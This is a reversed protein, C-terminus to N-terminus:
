MNARLLFAKVLDALIQFDSFDFDFEYYWSANISTFDIPLTFEPVVPDAVFLGLVLTLDTVISFPFVSKITTGLATLATATASETLDDIWDSLTDITDLINSYLLKNNIKDLEDIADKIADLIKELLAIIEDFFDTYDTSDTTTSNDVSNDVYNYITYSGDDNLAGYHFSSLGYETVLQAYLSQSQFVAWRGRGYFAYPVSSLYAAETDSGSNFVYSEACFYGNGGANTYYSWNYVTDYSYLFSNTITDTDSFDTDPFLASQGLSINYTGYSYNDMFFCIYNLGLRSFSFNSSDYTYYRQYYKSGSSAYKISVVNNNNVYDQDIYTICMGYITNGADDTGYGYNSHFEIWLYDCYCITEKISAMEDPYTDCLYNWSNVAIANYETDLLTPYYTATNSNGYPPYYTLIYDSWNISKDYGLTELTDILASYVTDSITLNLGEISTNLDWLAQLEEETYTDYGLFGMFTGLFNQIANDSGLIASADYGAQYAAELIASLIGDEGNSDTDIEDAFSIIINNYSLAFILNFTIFVLFIRKRM